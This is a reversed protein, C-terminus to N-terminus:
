DELEQIYGDFFDERNDDGVRIICYGMFTMAIAAFVFFALWFIEM